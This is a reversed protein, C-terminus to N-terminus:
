RVGFLSLYWIISNKVGPSHESLWLLPFYITRLLQGVPHTPTLKLVRDLFCIVPGASLPYLVLVALLAAIPSLRMRPQEDEVQNLEESM